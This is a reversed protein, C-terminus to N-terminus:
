ELSRRIYEVKANIILLIMMVDSLLRDRAHGGGRELNAFCVPRGGDLDM